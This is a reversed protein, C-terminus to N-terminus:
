KKELDSAPIGSEDRVNALRKSVKFAFGLGSFLAVMGGIATYMIEAKVVYNLILIATIAPVSLVVAVIASLAFVRTTTMRRKNKDESNSGPM